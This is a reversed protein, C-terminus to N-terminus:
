EADILLEFYDDLLKKNYIDVTQYFFLPIGTLSRIGNVINDRESNTYSGKVKAWAKELVPGWMTGQPSPKAM